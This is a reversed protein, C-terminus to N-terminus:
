ELGYEKLLKEMLTKDCLAAEFEKIRNDHKVRAFLSAVLDVGEERGEERGLRRQKESELELVKGGMVEGIRERADEEDALIYDNIMMMLRTLDVFYHMRDGSYEKLMRDRLGAFETVLEQVQEKHMAGRRIMPEFRLIYFPLMIMLKKRFIQEEDYEFVRIIRPEYEYVIGKEDRITVKRPSAKGDDSRLYVVCSRPLRLTIADEDGEPNEIAIAIDYELMRLVMMKDKTSQCEVHYLTDGIQLLADTVLKKRGLFHENQPKESKVDPPYDTGFAENILPILLEPMRECITKFVDDFVTSKRRM